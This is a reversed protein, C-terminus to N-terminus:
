AGGLAPVHQALASRTGAADEHLVATLGVARAGEINPEADDIFVCEGPALGLKELVLQFIEPEPKRLGVRESIVAIEFVEEIAGHDYFDGWSNSLLAVRTGAARLDRALTWMEPDLRMGAFLRTLVGVPDVPTGAYTELAAALLRDFEEVPMTGRELQHIPSGEDAYRGLWQKLVTTFSEPVIGDAELWATISERVPYTMVGGFDFIVAKAPTTM